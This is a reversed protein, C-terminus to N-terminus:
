FSIFAPNPHIKSRCTEEIFLLEWDLMRSSLLALWNPYQAPLLSPSNSAFSIHSIPNLSRQLPPYSRILAFSANLLPLPCSVTSTESGVTAGNVSAQSNLPLVPKPFSSSRNPKSCIQNTTSSRGGLQLNCHLDLSMALYNPVIWVSAMEWGRLMVPSLM